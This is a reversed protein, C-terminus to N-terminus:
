ELALLSFATLHHTKLKQTKEKEKKKKKSEKDEEERVEGRERKGDIRSIWFRLGELSSAM